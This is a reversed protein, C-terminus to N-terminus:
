LKFFYKCKPQYATKLKASVFLVRLPPPYHIFYTHWIYLFYFLIFFVSLVLANKCSVILINVTSSFFVFFCCCKFYICTGQCIFWILVIANIYLCSVFQSAVAVLLEQLFTLCFELSLFSVYLLHWKIISCSQTWTGITHLRWSNVLVNEVGICSVLLM